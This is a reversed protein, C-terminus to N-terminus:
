FLQTPTTSPTHNSKTHIVNPELEQPTKPLPQKPQPSTTALELSDTGIARWVTCSSDLETLWHRRIVHTSVRVMSIDRKQWFAPRRKRLSTGWVSSIPPLEVAGEHVRVQSNNVVVYVNTLYLWRFTTNTVSQSIAVTIFKYYCLREYLCGYM